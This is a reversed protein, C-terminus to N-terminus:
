NFDNRLIGSKFLICFFAGFVLYQGFRSAINMDGTFVAILVPFVLSMTMFLGLAALIFVSNLM